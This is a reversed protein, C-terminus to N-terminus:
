EDEFLVDFLEKCSDDCGEDDEELFRRSAANRHKRRVVKELVEVTKRSVRLFFMEAEQYVLRHRNLIEIVENTDDEDRIADAIEMRLAGSGDAKQMCKLAAVCDMNIDEILGDVEDRDLKRLFLRKRNVFYRIGTTAPAIWGRNKLHTLFAKAEGYHLGYEQQIWPVSVYRKRKIKEQILYANVQDM